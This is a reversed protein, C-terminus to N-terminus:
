KKESSFAIPLNAGKANGTNYGLVHFLVDGAVTAGAGNMTDGKVASVANIPHFVIRGIDRQWAIEGARTDYARLIGDVSGAIVMQDIAIAAALLGSTGINIM